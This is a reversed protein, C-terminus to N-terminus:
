VSALHFAGWVVCAITGSHRHGIPGPPRGGISLPEWRWGGLVYVGPPGGWNLLCKFAGVGVGGWSCCGCSPMRWRRPRTVGDSLETIRGEKALAEDAQDLWQLLSAPVQLSPLFLLWFPLPSAGTPRGPLPSFSLWRTAVVQDPVTCFLKAKKFRLGREM